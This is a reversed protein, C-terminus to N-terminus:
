KNRDAMAGYPYYSTRNLGLQNCTRAKSWVFLSRKRSEINKERAESSCSSLAFGSHVPKTKGILSPSISLKKVIVELIGAPPLKCRDHDLPLRILLRKDSSEITSPSTIGSKDKKTGVSAVQTKTSSTIRAKEQGNRSVTAWSNKTMKPIKPLSPAECMKGVKAFVGMPTRPTTIDVKKLDNKGNGSGYAGSKNTRIDSPIRPPVPSIDVEAFKAIALRLYVKFAM